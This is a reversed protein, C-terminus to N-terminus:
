YQDIKREMLVGDADYFEHVLRGADNEFRYETKTLEGAANYYAVKEKDGTSKERYSIEILHDNADRREIVYQDDLSYEYRMEVVGSADCIETVARGDEEYTSVTGQFVNRADYIYEISEESNEYFCQRKEVLIDNKDYIEVIEGSGAISIGSCHPYVHKGQYVGNEDYFYNAIEECVGDNYSKWSLVGRLDYFEEVNRGDTYQYCRHRMVGGKYETDEVSLYGDYRITVHKDGDFVGHHYFHEETVQHGDQDTYQYSVQEMLGNQDYTEAVQKGDTDTYYHFTKQLVSHKDSVEAISIGNEDTFCRASELLHGDADYSEIIETGDEDTRRRIAEMLAGNGDRTESQIGDENVYQHLTKAIDGDSGYVETLSEGDATIQRKRQLDNNQPQGAYYYETIAKDKADTCFQFQLVGDEDYFATVQKGEEDIYSRLKFMLGENGNFVEYTHGNRETYAHLEVTKDKSQYFFSQERKEELPRYDHLPTYATAAQSQATPLALCLVLLLKLLTGKM